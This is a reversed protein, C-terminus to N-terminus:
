VPTHCDNHGEPAAGWHTRFSQVARVVIAVGDRVRSRLSMKWRDSIVSIVGVPFSDPPPANPNGVAVSPLFWIYGPGILGVQRAVRFLYQAEEHSCYVLLVQADM